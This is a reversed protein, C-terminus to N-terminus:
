ITLAEMAEGSPTIRACLKWLFVPVTDLTDLKAYLHQGCDMIAWSCKVAGTLLVTAFKTTISSTTMPTGRPERNGPMGRGTPVCAVLNSEASEARVHVHSMVRACKPCISAPM